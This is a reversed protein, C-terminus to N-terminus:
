NVPTLVANVFEYPKSSSATKKWVCVLVSTNKANYDWYILSPYLDKVSQRVDQFTFTATKEVTSNHSPNTILPISNVASPIGGANNIASARIVNRHTVYSNNAGAQYGSVSDELILISVHYDGQLTSYTAIKYTIEISNTNTTKAKAAVGISPNTGAVNKNYHFLIDADTTSANGLYSNNMWFTPVATSDPGATYRHIENIFPSVFPTDNTASKFYLPVLYTLTKVQLNVGIIAPDAALTSLFTPYALSGSATTNTSGSYLLLGRQTPAVTLPLDVPPKPKEDECSSLFALSILALLTFFKSTLKQIPKM